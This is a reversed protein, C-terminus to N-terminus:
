GPEKKELETVVRVIYEGRTLVGQAQYRAEEAERQRALQAARRDAVKWRREQRRLFGNGATMTAAGSRGLHEEAAPAVAAWAEDMEARSQAKEEASPLGWQPRFPDKVMLKRRAEHSLTGAENMKSGEEALVAVNGASDGAAGRRVVGLM